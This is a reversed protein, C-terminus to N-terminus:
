ANEFLTVMNPHTSSCVVNFFAGCALHSRAEESDTLVTAPLRQWFYMSCTAVLRSTLASLVSNLTVDSRWTVEDHKYVIMYVRTRSAPAGFCRPDIRCSQLSWAPGLEHQVISEPYEAVNELLLVNSTKPIEKFYSQHTKYAIGKTGERKGILSFSTCVPGSLLRM